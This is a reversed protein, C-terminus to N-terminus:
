SACAVRWTLHKVPNCSHTLTTMSVCQHSVHLKKLLVWIWSVDVLCNWTILLARLHWFVQVVSSAHTCILLSPDQQDLLAYHYHIANTHSSINKYLKKNNILKNPIDPAIAICHTQYMKSMPSPHRIKVDYTSHKMTASVVIVSEQKKKPAARAESMFRPLNTWTTESVNM